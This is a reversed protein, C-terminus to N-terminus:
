MANYFPLEKEIRNLLYEKDFREGAKIRELIDQYLANDFAIENKVLHFVAIGVQKTLTASANLLDYYNALPITTQDLIHLTKAFWLPEPHSFIDNIMQRTIKGKFNSFFEEMAANAYIEDNCGQEILQKIEQDSLRIGIWEYQSPNSIKQQCYALESVAIEQVYRAIVEKTAYRNPSQHSQLNLSDAASIEKIQKIKERLEPKQKTVLRNLHFLDICYNLDKDAIKVISDSVKVISLWLRKAQQPNMPATLSFLAEDICNKQITNLRPLSFCESINEWIAEEQEALSPELYKLLEMFRAIEQYNSSLLGKNLVELEFDEEFMRVSSPCTSNFFPLLYVSSSDKCGSIIIKEINSSPTNALCIVQKTFHSTFHASTKCAQAYNKPFNQKFSGASIWKTESPLAHNLGTIKNIDEIIESLDQQIIGPLSAFFLSYQESTLSLLVRPNYVSCLLGMSKALRVLQSLGDWNSATLHIETLRRGDSDTILGNQKPVTIANIPSAANNHQFDNGKKQWNM